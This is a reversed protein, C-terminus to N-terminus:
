HEGLAISFSFFILPQSNQFTQVSSGSSTQTWRSVKQTTGIGVSAIKRTDGDVWHYAIDFGGGLLRFRKDAISHAEVQGAFAGAYYGSDHGTGDGLHTRWNVHSLLEGSSDKGITYAYNGWDKTVVEGNVDILNNFFGVGVYYKHPSSTDDVPPPADDAMAVSAMLLLAALGPILLSIRM